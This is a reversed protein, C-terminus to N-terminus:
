AAYERGDVRCEIVKGYRLSPKRESSIWGHITEIAYGAIGNAHALRFAENIADHRENDRETRVKRMDDAIVEDVSRGYDPTASHTM